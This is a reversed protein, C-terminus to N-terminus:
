QVPILIMLMIESISFTETYVEQVLAVLSPM